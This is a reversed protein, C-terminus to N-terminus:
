FKNLYPSALARWHGSLKKFHAVEGASRTMWGQHHFDAHEKEDHLEKHSYRGIISGPACCDFIKKFAETIAKSRRYTCIEKSVM